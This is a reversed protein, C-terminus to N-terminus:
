SSRPAPESSSSTSSPPANPRAAPGASVSPGPASIPSISTSSGPPPRIASMWASPASVRTAIDRSAAARPREVRIRPRRHRQDLNQGRPEPLRRLSSARPRAPQVGDRIAWTTRPAAGLSESPAVGRDGPHARSVDSGTAPPRAASVAGSGARDHLPSEDGGVLRRTRRPARRRPGAARHSPTRRARPAGEVTKTAPSIRTRSAPRRSVLRITFGADDASASDRAGARARSRVRVHRPLAGVPACTWAPARGSGASASRTREGVIPEGLRRSSPDARTTRTAGARGSRRRPRIAHRCRAATTSLARELDDATAVRERAFCGSSAPSSRHRSSTACGVGTRRGADHDRAIPAPSSSGRRRLEHLECARGRRRRRSPSRRPFPQPSSPLRTRRTGPRPSSSVGAARARVIADRLVQPSREGYISANVVAAGHDVAYDIAAATNVNLAIGDAGLVRLPMVSCVLLDRGASATTRGAAAAGAVATGHGNRRPIRRTPTMTSSTTARAFRGRSTPTRRDVGSDM